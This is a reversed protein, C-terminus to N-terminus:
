ISNHYCIKFFSHYSMKDFFPLMSFKLHENCMSWFYWLEDSYATYWMDYVIEKRYKKLKKSNLKEVNILYEEALEKDVETISDDPNPPYLPYEDNLLDM